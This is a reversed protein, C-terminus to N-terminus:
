KKRKQDSKQIHLDSWNDVTKKEEQLLRNYKITETFWEWKLESRVEMTNHDTTSWQEEFNM